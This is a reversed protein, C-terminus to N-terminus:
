EGDHSQRSDAADRRAAAIKGIRELLDLREVLDSRRVDVASAALKVARDLAKLVEKLGYGKVVESTRLTSSRWEETWDLGREQVWRRQQELLAGDRLLVLRRGGPRMSAETEPAEPERFEDVIVIGNEFEPERSTKSWYPSRRRGSTFGYQEPTPAKRHRGLLRRITGAARSLMPKKPAPTWSSIVWGSYDEIPKDVLPLLPRLLEIFQVLEDAERDLVKAELLNLRLVEDSLKKLKEM